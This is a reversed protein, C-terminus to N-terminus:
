AYIPRSIQSRLDSVPSQEYSHQRFAPKQVATNQAPSMRKQQEIRGSLDLVLEKVRSAFYGLVSDRRVIM